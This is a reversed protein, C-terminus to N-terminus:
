RHGYVPDRKELFAQMGEKLDEIRVLEEVYMREVAPLAREFGLETGIRVAKKTLRVVPASQALIQDRLSGSRQRLEEASLVEHILGYRLAEEAGFIRGTLLLELTRGPGLRSPYLAAAVPPYCALRIEPQGFRAAPTAMVYDCALALELGGGLCHGEVLAVTFADLSRLREIARHFTALMREIKDLAHDQVSVGASFAKSSESRLAVWVLDEQKGLASFARNLEEMLPIDLINLPPRHLIVEAWREGQEIKLGTEM